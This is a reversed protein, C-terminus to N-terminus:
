NDLNYMTNLEELEDLESELNNLETIIEDFYYESSKYSKVCNIPFYGSMESDEDVYIGKTPATSQFGKYVDFSKEDLNIIYGWECFLSDKGFSYNDIMYGCNLTAEIDGQTERLLSYWANVSQNGVNLDAYSLLKEIDEPNPKQDESVLKLSLVRDKLNELEDKSSNKLWEVLTVGLGGPYSDYHNYTLYPKGDVLFGYIGRTSM